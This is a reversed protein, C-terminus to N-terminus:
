RDSEDLAASGQPTAVAVKQEAKSPQNPRPSLEKTAVKIFRDPAEKAADVYADHGAAIRENGHDIYNWIDQEIGKAYGMLEDASNTIKTPATLLLLANADVLAAWAAGYRQRRDSIAGHIDAGSRLAEKKAWRLEDAAMVFGDFHALFSACASQRASREAESRERAQLSTQSRSSLHAGLATGAAGVATGALGIISTFIDSAMAASYLRNTSKALTSRVSSTRM